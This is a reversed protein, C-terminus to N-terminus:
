ICLLALESICSLLFLARQRKSDSDRCQIEVCKRADGIKAEKEKEKEAEVQVEAAAEKVKKKEVEVEAEAKGEAM